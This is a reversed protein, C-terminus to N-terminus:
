FWCSPLPITAGPTANHSTSILAPAILLYQKLMVSLSLPCSNVTQNDFIKAGFRWRLLMTYYVVNTAVLCIVVDIVQFPDGIEFISEM